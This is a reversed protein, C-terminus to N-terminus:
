KLEWEKITKADEYMARYSAHRSPHIVGAQVAELVACGKEVTHSCGTYKCKELYPVFEVFCAGLVEKRITEYRQTEVSSFGPTDAIWGDRFKYLEVTRTTHRGRGLKRSTEGTELQLNGIRGLLSSKGVGTNGSFASIGHSLMDRLRDLGEELQDSVTLVPIGAMRYIEELASPSALDCKTVVVVPSIEKYCAIALLKDLVLANPSPDLISTVLVFTDLNALPPRLLANKRPLIETVCGGGEATREIYVQDGVLPKRGDKRFLGRARCEVTEETTDVYYFGGSSRIILGQTADSNM